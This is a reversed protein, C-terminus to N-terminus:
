ARVDTVGSAELSGILGKLIRQVEEVLALAPATAERRTFGLREAILLQTEVENASGRAVDLFHVFDAQTRRGHGEAVNSPISIAARRVQATLGFREDAPFVHSTKYVAVMLDMGKQWANLDKFSVISSM